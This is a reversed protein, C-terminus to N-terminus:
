GSTETKPQATRPPRQASCPGLRDISRAMALGSYREPDYANLPDIGASHHVTHQEPHAPYCRHHTTSVRRKLTGCCRRRPTAPTLEIPDAAQILVGSVGSSSALVQGTQVCPPRRHPRNTRYSHAEAFFHAGPSCSGGVRRSAGSALGPSPSSGQGGNVARPSPDVPRDIPPTEKATLRNCCDVAAPLSVSRRDGCARPTAPICCVEPSSASDARRACATRVAANTADASSPAASIRRHTGV